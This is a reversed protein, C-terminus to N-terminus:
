EIVKDARLLISDPIRIGLAKATKKNLVLQFKTAQEVPLDALKAGKLIRDVFYAARRVMQVLDVGYALLGGAEALEPLGISPLRHKAALDAITRINGNLMPDEITVVAEARKATMASFASELEGPARVGVQQLELKLAKAAQDMAKLVPGMTLNDPNHLLAVRRIHPFTDRLVELRKAALEPNYFTLGTVNGDPRAINAVLGGLVADGVHGMVIPITATAHKAARVGPTGHTVIVDVKLRVLEGALQPLSDYKDDAWRFEIVLNKGEVYGLERLGARLAEIRSKANAASTPGLFGIRAVKAPQAFCALPAAFAGIGLAVILNRRKNM